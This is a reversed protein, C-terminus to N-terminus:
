PHTTAKNILSARLHIETNLIGHWVMANKSSTISKWNPNPATVRHVVPACLSLLNPIKKTIFYISFRIKLCPLLSSKSNGGKESGREEGNEVGRQSGEDWAPRGAAFRDEIVWDMFPEAVVPWADQLGLRESIRERDAATTRPVIRDVMSNPFTCKTAIWTHLAGDVQEAFELVLGRLTHGNAPLNDCSLLTVPPLSRQMRLRLGLVVFGLASRPTDHHLLDHEIDPDQLRLAGTAPDHSYGKETVTLSLIRTDRHAIRELVARPDRSAVLVQTLAGIVQLSERPAGDAAADRLALTYLCNQPALADHTDPHRLSVGVIGWRLNGGAHLAAETAAALHARAFAGLGLHVIGARLEGRDYRPRGISADIQALTNTHLRNM